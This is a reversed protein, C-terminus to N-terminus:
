AYSSFRRLHTTKICDPPKDRLSGIIYLLNTKYPLLTRQGLGGNLSVRLL